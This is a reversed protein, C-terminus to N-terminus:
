TIPHGLRPDPDGEFIGGLRRIEMRDLGIRNSLLGINLHHPVHIHIPPAPEPDPDDPRKTHTLISTPVPEPSQTLLSVTFFLYSRHM